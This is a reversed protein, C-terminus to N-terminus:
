RFHKLVYIPLQGNKCDTSALVQNTCTRGDVRCYQHNKKEWFFLVMLITQHPHTLSVRRCRTLAETEDELSRNTTPRCEQITMFSMIICLNLQAKRLKNRSSSSITFIPLLSRITVFLGADRTSLVHNWGRWSFALTLGSPLLSLLWHFRCHCIASWEM